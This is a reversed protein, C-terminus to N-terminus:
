KKKPNLPVDYNKTIADSDAEVVLEEARYDPPVFSVEEFPQGPKAEGDVCTITVQYRGPLLGDGEQFTTAEFKGDNGFPARGPRNPLGTVGADAVKVFSISGEIPPPGGEFTVQGSVPVLPLGHGSGCGLPLSCFAALVATAIVRKM